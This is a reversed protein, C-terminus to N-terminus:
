KESALRLVEVTLNGGDANTLATTALRPHVYPAAAKAMDARRDEDVFEDRMVRLMYELPMEGTEAAGEAIARTRKTIAGVKRGSGSRKGGHAM